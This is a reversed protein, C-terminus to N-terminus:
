LKENMYKRLVPFQVPGIELIKQHFSKLDFNEGLLSQQEEKLDLFNLYGVYYKLYNAPTETIYRYIEATVAADRIGFLNLFRAAQAPTWGHYHIGVDLLSYICLNVSRNLWSLRTCASAEQSSVTGASLYDAAYDYAYSEVYTAWGEVYGSYDILYRIHSPSQRGFYVTQYLHGPFGEHALTTFLELNSIQRGHNIYIVNPAGTDMPPTLYFAPSLFEEMSKHVSRIEFDVSATSPFDQQINKELLEMVRTPEMDPLDMKENLLTLLQPHQKLLESIEQSDTSLQQTLRKELKEVPIYIGVQSKLLYQYYEKGGSFNVLGGTNKGTGRLQELGEILTQYAPLVKEKLIQKHTLNLQEQDKESLKGYAKLKQSFIELMYNSDPNQIFARCQNQIRELTEDCMFFGADSKTQEFALISQFYEKTSCLLNLYDTIDQNTYFSYEALLVPLQAQIGLSPSLPEELLYNDGLSKETHYYLLMSDLTLQNETSLRSYRFSKLKKEYQSCIQYTNKMDTPVTGLSAKKRRIGQKEPHALTYHLTLTSGSVENQFVKGSFAEFKGNETIGHTSFYGATLGTLLALILLLTIIIPSKNKRIKLSM